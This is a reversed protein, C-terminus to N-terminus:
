PRYQDATETLNSSPLAGSLQHGKRQTAAFTISSCMFRLRKVFRYVPQPRAKPLKFVEACHSASESINDVVANQEVSATAPCPTVTVNFPGDGANDGAATDEGTPGARRSQSARNCGGGAEIVTPHGARTNFPHESWTPRRLDFILVHFEVVDSPVEVVNPKRM